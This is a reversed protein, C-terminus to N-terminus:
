FFTCSPQGVSDVCVSVLESTSYDSNCAGDWACFRYTGCENAFTFPFNLGNGMIMHHNANPGCAPPTGADAAYTYAVWGTESSIKLKPGGNYVCGSMTPAPPEECFCAGGSSCTDYGTCGGCDATRPNGCSDNGTQEGCTWNNAACFATDNENATCGCMNDVGAGGCTDFGTCSGCDPTRAVGCSDTVDLTGCEASAATCLEADSEGTCPEGGAGGSGGAAGSGGTGGTSTTTAADGGTATTTGGGM